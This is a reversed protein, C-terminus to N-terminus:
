LMVLLHLDQRGSCPGIRTAARFPTRKESKNRLHRLVFATAVCVAIRMPITRAVPVGVPCPENVRAEPKPRRAM